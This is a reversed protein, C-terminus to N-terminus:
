KLEITIRCQAPVRTSLAAWGQLDRPDHADHAGYLASACRTQDAGGQAPLQKQQHLLESTFWNAQWYYDLISSEAAPQAFMVALVPAQVTQHRSASHNVFTRTTPPLSYKYSVPARASTHVIAIPTPSLLTRPSALQLRTPSSGPGDASALVPSTRHARAVGEKSTMRRPGPPVSVRAKDHAHTSSM